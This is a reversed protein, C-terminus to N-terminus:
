EGSEFMFTYAKTKLRGTNALSTGPMGATIIGNSFTNQTLDAYTVTINIIDRVTLKNIGPRNANFLVSLNKDDEGGPIVNITVPIPKAESWAVMDGNPGSAANGIELNPFDIADTDDAFETLTLGIPYTFSATMQIQTGFGSIDEM